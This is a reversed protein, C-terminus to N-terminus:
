KPSCVDVEATQEFTIAWVWPNVDWGFGRKANWNWCQTTSDIEYKEDFREKETKM